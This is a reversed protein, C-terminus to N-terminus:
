PTESVHQIKGNINAWSRERNLKMKSNVLEQPNGGYAYEIQSLMIRIDACEYLIATANTGEELASLLEGVEHNMRIGVSLPKVAGFTEKAWDFITKPTEDFHLVQKDQNM